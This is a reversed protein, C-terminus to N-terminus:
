WCTTVGGDGHYGQMGAEIWDGSLRIPHTNSDQAASWSVSAELLERLSKPRPPGSRSSAM